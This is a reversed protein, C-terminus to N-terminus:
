KGTHPISSFHATLQSAPIGATTFGAVTVDKRVSATTLSIILDPMNGSPASCNIQPLAPSIRSLTVDWSTTVNVPEADVPNNNFVFLFIRVSFTGNLISASESLQITNPSSTFGPIGSHSM